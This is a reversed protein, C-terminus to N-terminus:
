LPAGDGDLSTFSRFTGGGLRSSIWEGGRITELSSHAVSDEFRAEMLLLEYKQMMAAEQATDGTVAVAIDAALRTAVAQKLSSDMQSVDTINAVYLINMDESDTVIYLEPTDGQNGAEIRYEVADNELSVIRIFDTPLQYRGSFGWVPATADKSLSARKICCNWQHARLVSDRVDALRKDVLNARNNNDTLDNIPQQGLMTLAMNALDVETTASSSM